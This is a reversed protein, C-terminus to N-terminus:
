SRSAEVRRVAINQLSFTPTFTLPISLGQAPFAIIKDQM